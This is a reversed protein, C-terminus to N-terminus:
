LALLAIAACAFVIGLGERVTIPEKLIFFALVITIAPYLATLAVVVSVKGKSVAMHYFLAGLLGLFGTAFALGIGRPHSDLRFGLFCFLILALAVGGLVEWVAASTPRIYQTTLKPLFGWVGWLLWTLIAPLIWGKM